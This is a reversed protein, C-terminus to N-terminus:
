LSTVSCQKLPTFRLSDDLGTVGELWAHAEIKTDGNQVGFRLNAYCGRRALLFQLTLARELCTMPKVHHNAVGNVLQTMRRVNVLTPRSEGMHRNTMFLRRRWPTRVLAAVWLMTLWAEAVVLRHQSKSPSRYSM